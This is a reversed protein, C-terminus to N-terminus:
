NTLDDIMWAGVYQIDLTVSTANIVAQAGIQANTGNVRYLGTGSFYAFDMDTVTVGDYSPGFALPVLTTIDGSTTAEWRMREGSDFDNARGNIVVAWIANSSVRGVHFTDTAADYIGATDIASSSFLLPTTTTGATITSCGASVFANTSAASRAAANTNWTLSRTAFSYSDASGAVINTAGGDSGGGGGLLSSIDVLGASTIANTTGATAGYRAAPITGSTLQTANLGTLSVGSGQYTTAYHAGINTQVTGQYDHVGANNISYRLSSLATYFEIGGSAHDPAVVIVKGPLDGDETHFLALYSADTDNSTEGAALVLNRRGGSGIAGITFESGSARMMLGALNTVTQANGNANNALVQSLGQSESQLATAGLAAGTTVTNSVAAWVPDLEPGHGSAAIARNTHVGLAALAATDSEATLYGMGTVAAMVANTDASVTVSGSAGGGSLWTGATVGTIDGGEGSEVSLTLKNSVLTSAIGSGFNVTSVPSAAVGNTQYGSGVLEASSGAFASPWVHVTGQGIPYEAAGEILIVSYIWNTYATGTQTSTLEMQIFHSQNSTLNSTRSYAAANTAYQRAEWRATLGTLTLWTGDLKPRLRLQMDAGQQIHLTELEQMQQWNVDVDLYKTPAAFAAAATLIWAILTARTKM